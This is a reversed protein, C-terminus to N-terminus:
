YQIMIAEHDTVGEGILYDTIHISQYPTNTLSYDIRTNGIFTRTDKDNGSQIWADLEYNKSLSKFVEYNENGEKYANFDGIILFKQNTNSFEILNDWLKKGYDDTSIKSSPMHVGLVTLDTETNQLQITKNYYNIGDDISHKQKWNSDITTLAVTCGKPKKNKINSPLHIKINNPLKSIFYQYPAKNMNVEHLIICDNNTIYQNEIFTVIADIYEQQWEDGYGNNQIGGFKNVNLSTIM